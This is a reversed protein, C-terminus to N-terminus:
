KRRSRVVRTGPIRDHWGLTGFFSFPEFPIFRCATRGMVQGISPKMGDKDVVITGFLWKGPTRGWIGEFFGYYLFMFPLAALDSTEEIAVLVADGFIVVAVGALLGILFIMGLYDVVFTGLRRGKGALELDRPEDPMAVNSRPPQYPNNGAEM